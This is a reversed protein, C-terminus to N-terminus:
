EDGHDEDEEDIEDTEDHSNLYFGYAALHREEDEFAQSADENEIRWDPGIVQGEGNRGAM